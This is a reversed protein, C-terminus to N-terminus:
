AAPRSHVKARAQEYETDSIVGRDHLDALKTLDDASVTGERAADRVYARFAEEQARASAMERDAMTGGRAGLYVLVGLLPLVIVFV